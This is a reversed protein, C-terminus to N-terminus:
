REEDRREVGLPEDDGNGRLFRTVRGAVPNQRGGPQRAAEGDRGFDEDCSGGGLIDDEEEGDLIEDNRLAM